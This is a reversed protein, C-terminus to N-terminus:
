QPLKQLISMTGGYAISLNEKNFVKEAAGAAIIRENVLILKDFYQTCTSLDHHVVLLTKGQQRLLQMIEVIKQETNVDVGVFPEDLFLLDAEQCLARALFVRQQQGGSLAGIQRHRLDIIGLQHMAEEAKLKDEAQLRAWVSHKNFRGMLVVDYVSCPFTWDIESRQPIYAMSTRMSKIPKSRFEITGSNCPILGLIAKFLTSKGAGNPGMIGYSFGLELDLYVNRLVTRGNYAVNLNQISLM